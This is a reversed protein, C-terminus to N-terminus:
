ELVLILRTFLAFLAFLMMMVTVFVLVIVFLAFMNTLRGLLELCQDLLFSNFLMPFATEVGRGIIIEPRMSVFNGVSV